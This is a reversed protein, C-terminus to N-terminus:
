FGGWARMNAILAAAATSNAATSFLGHEAVMGHLGNVALTTGGWRMLVGNLCNGNACPTLDLTNTGAAASVPTLGDVYLTSTTGGAGAVAVVSHFAGDSAGSVCIYVTCNRPSTTSSNLMVITGAPFNSTDGFAVLMQNGATWLTSYNFSNGTLSGDRRAISIHTWTTNSPQNPSWCCDLSAGPPSQDAGLTVMCYKGNPTCNALLVPQTDLGQEELWPCPVPIHAPLERSCNTQGTPDYAGFVRCDTSSFACYAAGTTSGPCPTGVTMDLEGKSAGSAFTSINCFTAGSDSNRHLQIALQGATANSWARLGSWWWVSLSYTAAVDGPGVYTAPPTATGAGGPFLFAVAPAIQGVLLGLVLGIRALM